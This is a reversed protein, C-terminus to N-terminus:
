ASYLYLFGIIQYFLCVLLLLLFFVDVTVIHEENESPLM